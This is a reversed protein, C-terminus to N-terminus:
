SADLVHSAMVLVKESDRSIAGLLVQWRLGSLISRRLFSKQHINIREIVSGRRVKQWSSTDAGASSIRHYGSCRHLFYSLALLVAFCLISSSEAPAFGLSQDHNRGDVPHNRLDSYDAGQGCFSMGVFLQLSGRAVSAESPRWTIEGGNRGLM